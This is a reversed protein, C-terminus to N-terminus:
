AAVDPLVPERDREVGVPCVDEPLEALDPVPDRPLPTAQGRLEVAGSGRRELLDESLELEFGDMEREPRDERVAERDRHHVADRRPRLEALELAPEHREQPRDRSRGPDIAIRGRDSRLEAIPGLAREDAHGDRFLVGIKRRDGGRKRGARREIGLVDFM